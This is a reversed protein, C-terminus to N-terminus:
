KTLMDVVESSDMELLEAVENLSHNKLLRIIMSKEGDIRGENRIEFLVGRYPKEM